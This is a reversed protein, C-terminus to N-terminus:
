VREAYVRQPVPADFAHRRHQCESSFWFCASVVSCRTLPMHACLHHCSCTRLTAGLPAPVPSARTPPACRTSSGPLGDPIMLPPAGCHTQAPTPCKRSTQPHNRASHPLKSTPEPVKPLNPLSKPFNPPPKPCKPSTQPHNPILKPLNPTTEPYNRPLESPFVSAKPLLPSIQPLNM